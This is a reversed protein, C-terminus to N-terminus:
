ARRGTSPDLQEGGVGVAGDGEVALQQAPGGLAAARLVAPVDGEALVAIGDRAAHVVVASTAPGILPRDVQGAVGGLGGGGLGGGDAAPHDHGRHLDALHAVHGDQGVGAPRADPHPLRAHVAPQTREAGDAVAGPAVVDAVRGPEFQM